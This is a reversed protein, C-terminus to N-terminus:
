AETFKYESSLSLRKAFMETFGAPMHQIVVISLNM